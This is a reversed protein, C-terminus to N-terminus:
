LSLFDWATFLYDIFVYVTMGWLASLTESCRGVVDTILQKVVSCV